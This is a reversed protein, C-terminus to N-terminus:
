TTKFLDNNYEPTGMYNNDIWIECESEMCHIHQYVHLLWERCARSDEKNNENSVLMKEPMFKSRYLNFLHPFHGKMTEIGYNTPSRGLPSADFHISDIIGMAHKNFKWTCSEVQQVYLHIQMFIGRTKFSESTYSIAAMVGTM